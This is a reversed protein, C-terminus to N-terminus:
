LFGASIESYILHIKRLRYDCPPFITTLSPWATIKAGRYENSYHSEEIKAPRSGAKKEFV